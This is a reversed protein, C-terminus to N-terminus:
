KQLGSSIDEYLERHKTQIITSFLYPVPFQEVYVILFDVDTSFELNEKVIIIIITFVISLM